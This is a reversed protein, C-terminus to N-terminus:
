LEEKLFEKGGLGAGISCLLVSRAEMFLRFAGLALGSSPFFLLGHRFIVELSGGERRWELAIPGFKTLARILFFAAERVM